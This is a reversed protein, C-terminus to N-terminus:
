YLLLVLVSEMIGIVWTLIKKVSSESLLPTDICFRVYTSFSADDTRIFCYSCLFCREKYIYIYIYLLFRQWCKSLVSWHIM